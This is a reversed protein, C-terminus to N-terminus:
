LLRRGRGAPIDFEFRDYISYPDAKRLDWKVGSARAVPGSIGCNIAMEQSLIGVGRARALLIENQKLFFEYEEIFAPLKVSSNRCRRCSSM